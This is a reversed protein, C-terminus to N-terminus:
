RCTLEWLGVQGCIYAENELTLEVPFLPSMIKGDAKKFSDKENQRKKREGERQKKERERNKATKNMEESQLTVYSFFDM